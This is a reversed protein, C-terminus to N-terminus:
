KKAEKNQLSPTKGLGDLFQKAIRLGNDYSVGKADLRSQLGSKSQDTSATLLAFNYLGEFERYARVCLVARM